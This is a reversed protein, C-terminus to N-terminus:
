GLFQIKYWFITSLHLRALGGLPKLVSAIGDGFYNFSM